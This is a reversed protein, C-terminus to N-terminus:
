NLDKRGSSLHLSFHILLGAFCYLRQHAQKQSREFKLHMRVFAVNGHTLVYICTGRKRQKGSPIGKLFFTKSPRSTRWTLLSDCVCMGIGCM